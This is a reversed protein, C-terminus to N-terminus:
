PAGPCGGEQLPLLHGGRRCPMSYGFTTLVQMACNWETRRVMLSEFQSVRCNGGSDGDYASIGTKEM